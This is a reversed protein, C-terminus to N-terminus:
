ASFENLFQKTNAHEELAKLAIRENASIFRELPASNEIVTLSALSKRAQATHSLVAKSIPVLAKFWFIEELAPADKEIHITNTKPNETRWIELMLGVVTSIHGRSLDEKWDHADDNLQMAILYHKFYSILNRVEPSSIGYGFNLFMAVPGLIHGAAPPFKISYDGYDPLEEPIHVVPGEKVMRCYMTEWTNAADLADM